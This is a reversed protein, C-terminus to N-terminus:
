RRDRECVTLAVEYIFDRALVSDDPVTGASARSVIEEVITGPFPACRAAMGQFRPDNEVVARVYGNCFGVLREVLDSEVPTACASALAPARMPIFPPVIAAGACAQVSLAAAALARLAARPGNM